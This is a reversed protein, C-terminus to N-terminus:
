AGGPRGDCDPACAPWSCAHGGRYCPIVSAKQQDDTLAAQAADADMKLKIAVAAAREFDVYRINYHSAWSSGFEENAWGPRNQLVDLGINAFPELAKRASAIQAELRFAKQTLTYNADMLETSRARLSAIEDAAEKCMAGVYTSSMADGGTTAPWVRLKEEIDQRLDSM